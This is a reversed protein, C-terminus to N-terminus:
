STIILTINQLDSHKEHESKGTQWKLIYWFLLCIPHFVSIKLLMALAKGQTYYTWTDKASRIWVSLFSGWHLNISLSIINFNYLGFFLPKWFFNLLSSLIASNKWDPKGGLAAWLCPIGSISTPVSKVYIMHFGSLPFKVHPIRSPRLSENM